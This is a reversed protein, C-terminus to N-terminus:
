RGHAPRRRHSEERTCLWFASKGGNEETNEGADSEDVCGGREASLNMLHFTELRWFQENMTKEVSSDM